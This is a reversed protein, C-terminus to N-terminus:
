RSISGHLSAQPWGGQGFGAAVEGPGLRERNGWGQLSLGRPTVDWGWALAHAALAM